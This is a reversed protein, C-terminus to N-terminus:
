ELWLANNSVEKIENYSLIENIQSVGDELTSCPWAREKEGILNGNLDIIPVHASISIVWHTDNKNLLIVSMCGVTRKSNILYRVVGIFEREDGTYVNKVKKWPYAITIV